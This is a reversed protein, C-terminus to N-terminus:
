TTSVLRLTPVYNYKIHRVAEIGCKRAASDNHVSVLVGGVYMGSCNNASRV